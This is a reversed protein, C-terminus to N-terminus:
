VYYRMKNNQLSNSPYILITTQWQSQSEELQKEMLSWIKQDFIQQALDIDETTVPNNAIM